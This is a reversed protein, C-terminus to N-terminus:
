HAPAPSITVANEQASIAQWKGARKVFVDTFLLKRTVQGESNTTTVAGRALATSGYLNVTLEEIRRRDSGLPSLHSHYFALLDTKTIFHGSEPAPRLFDDALIEAIANVNTSNLSALWKDELHAVAAKEPELKDGNSNPAAPQALSALNLAAIVIVLVSLAPPLFCGSSTAPRLSKM